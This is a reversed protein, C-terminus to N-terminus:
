YKNIAEKVDNETTAVVDVGYGTLFKVDDIAFINSPDVMALVLTSGSRSVPLINHKQIIDLPILELLSTDVDVEELNIMPVRYLGSIFELLVKEDIFELKVLNSGLLGGNLKQEEVAKQLQIENILGDRILLQGLRTGEKNENSKM